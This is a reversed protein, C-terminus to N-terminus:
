IWLHLRPLCITITTGALIPDCAICVVAVDNAYVEAVVLKTPREVRITAEEPQTMKSFEVKGEVVERGEGCDWRLKPLKYPQGM